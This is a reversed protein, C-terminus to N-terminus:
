ARRVGNRGSRHIYRAVSTPSTKFMYALQRHTYEGTAYLNRIQEIDGDSLYANPNTLGIQKFPKLRGRSSADEMNQKHTGDYLHAYLVCMENDCTHLAQNEVTGNELKLIVRSVRWPKGDVKIKPYGDGSVSRQWELCEGNWEVNVAIYCILTHPRTFTKRAWDYLCM